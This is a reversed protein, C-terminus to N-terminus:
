GAGLTYTGFLLCHDSGRMTCDTTLAVPAIPGHSFLYDIRIAGFPWRVLSPRWSNGLGVGTVRHADQLGAALERYAAERETVNMDGLVLLPEGTAMREAIFSRMRSIQEDRPGQNYCRMFPCTAGGLRPPQPHANVATVPTGNVDLTAWMLRPMDFADGLQPVGAAIIPYRSLIALGPAAVDPTILHYPFRELLSSQAALTRWDTEQLAVLDPDYTDFTRLLEDATVHNVYINWSIVRLVPMDAPPPPASLNLAPPYVALYAILAAALASRLIVAGRLLTLPALLLLPAFFYPAFVQALAGIGVRPERLLTLLTFALLGIPYLALLILM